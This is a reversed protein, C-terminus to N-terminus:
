LKMTKPVNIAIGSFFTECMYADFGMQKFISNGDWSSNTSTFDDLCYLEGKYRFFLSDETAYDYEKGEDETLEWFQLLEREHGNGIVKKENM